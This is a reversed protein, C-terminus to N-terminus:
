WEREYDEDFDEADLDEMENNEFEFLKGPAEDPLTGISLVVGTTSVDEATKVREIFFTWLSLFDYVYVLRDNNLFIDEVSCESMARIPSKEDFKEMPIEESMEWNGEVHYFSAMEGPNLEFAEVISQHLDFLSSQGEVVLQRIVDNKEDDLTIMLSFLSM